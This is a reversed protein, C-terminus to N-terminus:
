KRFHHIVFSTVQQLASYGQNILGVPIGGLVPPFGIITPSSHTRKESLIEITVM